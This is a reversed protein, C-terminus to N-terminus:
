HQGTRPGDVRGARHKRELLFDASITAVSDCCDRFKPFNASKSRNPWLVGTVVMIAKRNCQWVKFNREVRTRSQEILDRIESILATPILDM